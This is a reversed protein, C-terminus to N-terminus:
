KTRLKSLNSIKKELVDVTWLVMKGALIDEESKSDFYMKKNAIYKMEDVLLRWLDLSQITKAQEIIIRVEAVTLVNGNHILKSNEFVLIDKESVSNFLGQALGHLKKKTLKAM